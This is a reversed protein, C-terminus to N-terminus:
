DEGGMDMAKIMSDIFECETEDLQYKKFLDEFYKQYYSEDQLM